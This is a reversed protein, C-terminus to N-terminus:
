PRVTQDTKSSIRIISTFGGPLHAIWVRLLIVLRREKLLPRTPLCRDRFNAIPSLCSGTFESRGSEWPVWGGRRILVDIVNLCPAGKAHGEYKEGFAQDHIHRALEAGSCFIRM